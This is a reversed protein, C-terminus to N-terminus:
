DSFRPNQLVNPKTTKEKPVGFKLYPYGVGRELNQDLLLSKKM